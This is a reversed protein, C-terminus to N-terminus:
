TDTPPIIAVVHTCIMLATSITKPIVTRAAAVSRDKSKSKGRIYRSADSAWRSPAPMKAAPPRRSSGQDVIESESARTKPKTPSGWM